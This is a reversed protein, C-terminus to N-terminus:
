LCVRGAALQADPDQRAIAGGNLWIGAVLPASRKASRRSNYPSESWFASRAGNDLSAVPCVRECTTPAYGSTLTKDIRRLGKPMLQHPETKDIFRLQDDTLVSEVGQLTRLAM